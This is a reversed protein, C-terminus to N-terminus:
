IIGFSRFQWFRCLFPPINTIMEPMQRLTSLFCFELQWFDVSLGSLYQVFISGPRFGPHHHPMPAPMRYGGGGWPALFGNQILEASALQNQMAVTTPQGPKMRHVNKARHGGGGGGGTPFEEEDDGDNGDSGGSADMGVGSMLKKDPNHTQQFVMLIISANLLLGVKDKNFRSHIKGIDLWREAKDLDRLRYDNLLIIKKPM